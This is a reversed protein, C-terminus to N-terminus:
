LPVRFPFLWCFTNHHSSSLSLFNIWRITCSFMYVALFAVSKSCTASKVPKSCTTLLNRCPQQILWTATLRHFDSKNCSSIQLSAAPQQFLKYWAQPYFTKVILKCCAQQCSADVQMTIMLDSCAIRVYGSIPKVVALYCAQLQGHIPVHTWGWHMYNPELIRFKRNAILFKLSVAPPVSFCMQM